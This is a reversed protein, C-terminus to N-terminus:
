KVAEEHDHDPQAPSSIKVGRECRCLGFAAQSVKKIKEPLFDPQKLLPKLALIIDPDINDQYLGTDM